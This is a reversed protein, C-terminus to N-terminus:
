LIYNIFLCVQYGVVTGLAWNREQCVRRSITIAAIRRPQTVIINCPTKTQYCEDLIFQAVQTTKGCGTFGKIIIASEKKLLSLINEKQTDIALPPRNPADFEHLDFATAKIKLLDCELANLLEGYVTSGEELMSMGPGQVRCAHFSEMM